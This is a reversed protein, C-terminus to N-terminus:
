GCKEIAKWSAELLRRSWPEPDDVLDLAMLVTLLM